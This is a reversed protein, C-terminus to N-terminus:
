DATPKPQPAQPDATEEAPQGALPNQWHIKIDGINGGTDRYKRLIDVLLRTKQPKPIKMRKLMVTIQLLNKKAGDEYGYRKSAAYYKYYLSFMQQLYFQNNDRVVAQGEEVAQDFLTQAAEHKRHIACALYQRMLQRHRKIKNLRDDQYIREGGM